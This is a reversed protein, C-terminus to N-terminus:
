SALARELLFALAVGRRETAAAAFADAVDPVLREESGNGQDEAQEVEDARADEERDDDDAGVLTERSALHAQEHGHEERADQGPREERRVDPPGQGDPGHEHELEPRPHATGRKEDPRADVHEGHAQKGVASTMGDVSETTWPYRIAIVGSRSSPRASDAHVVNAITMEGIPGSMVPTSMVSTDARAAM